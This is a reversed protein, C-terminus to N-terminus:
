QGGIGESHSQQEKWRAEFVHSRHIADFSKTAIRTVLEVTCLQKQSTPDYLTVIDASSPTNNIHEM